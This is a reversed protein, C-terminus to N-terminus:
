LCVSLGVRVDYVYVCLCLVYVYVYYSGSVGESALYAYQNGEHLATVLMVVGNMNRTDWFRTMAARIKSAYLADDELRCSDLM